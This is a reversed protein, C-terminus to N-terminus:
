PKRAVLSTPDVDAGTVKQFAMAGLVRNSNVHKIAKPLDAAGAQDASAPELGGTMMGLYSPSTDGVNACASLATALALAAISRKM